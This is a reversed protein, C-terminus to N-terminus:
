PTILDWGFSELWRLHPNYLKVAILRMEEGFHTIGRGQKILLDSCYVRKTIEKGEKITKYTYAHELKTGLVNKVM